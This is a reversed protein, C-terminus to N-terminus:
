TFKALASELSIIESKDSDRAKVEVKGEGTKKSVVM